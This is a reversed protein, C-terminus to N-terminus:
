RGSKHDSENHHMTVTAAAIAKSEKLSHGRQRESRKVHEYMKQEKDSVNPLHEKQPVAYVEM